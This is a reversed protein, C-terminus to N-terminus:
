ASNVPASGIQQTRGVIYAAISYSVTRVVIITFAFSFLFVRYTPGERLGMAQLLGSKARILVFPIWLAVVPVWVWRAARFPIINMMLVAAAASAIADSITARTVVASVSTARPLLRSVLADGLGGAIFASAFHLLYM